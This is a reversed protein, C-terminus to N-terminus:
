AANLVLGAEGMASRAINAPYLADRLAPGAIPKTLIEKVGCAALLAAEEADTEPWLLVTRTASAQAVASALADNWRDGASRVTAEDFLALAVDNRALREAAEDLSAAFEVSDAREELLARLMARTIPNRDTILITGRDAGSTTAPDEAEILPLDVTFTTGKGPQSEVTVDGGMARALKRCIALGLGTGGFRRTTSADAQRFSEFIEELKDAAIGIGTDAVIIRFRDGAEAVGKLEIRGQETFKLANSLLNFVIQRLRAADGMVWNPCDGLSLDFAIGRDRAQDQWIRAVDALVACVNIPAQEITMNGTEMKAVDLIDDVLARMTVGASHVVGIRERTDGPLAADALMVQTMGLIGNLPTRIEHSTTALFETKAALAKGLAVNTESLADKAAREENRSRRISVIGFVLMVIVIIAGGGASIFVLRMIRAHAREYAIKRQLDQAELKAIKLNQNTYDFRAAMLATNASAALSAAQDDLRKLAELQQLALDTRGQRKYIQYATEHADRDNLMSTDGDASSFSRRILTAAQPLNGRHLAVQASIAYLQPLWGRAEPASMLAFAQNLVTDARQLDGWAVENLAMNALVTIQLTTSHLRKALALASRYEAEAEGYRKLQFLTNGHNNRLYVSLDADSNYTQAAQADYKLANQLDNADRYLSAIYQLAIAQSRTDGLEHFLAYAEHFDKLASAVRAQHRDFDGRSLLIDGRLKSSAADGSILKTASDLLREVSQPQNLRQLAEAQLWRAKALLEHHQAGIGGRVLARDIARADDLVREPNVNMLKKVQELQRDYAAAGSPASAATGPGALIGLFLAVLALLRM